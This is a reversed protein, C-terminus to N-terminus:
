PRRMGRVEVSSVEPESLLGAEIQRAFKVLGQEDLDGYISVYLVGRRWGGDLSVEPAEAEAPFLRIRQVAATIEQLGRNRDVGPALEARIDAEGERALSTVKRILDLGRLEAEIPLVISQEVEEPSAGPYEMEIEVVDLTFTPYIEQRIGRAVLLGTAVVAFMLLNAAVHNRAFWSLIGTSASAQSRASM